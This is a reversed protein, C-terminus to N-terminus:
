GASATFESILLALDTRADDLDLTTGDPAFASVQGKRLVLIATPALSGWIGVRHAGAHTRVDYECVAAVKADGANLSPGLRLTM